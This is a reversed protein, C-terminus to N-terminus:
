LVKLVIATVDDRQIESGRFADAAARLAELIEAASNSRHQRLLEIMRDRGFLHHSPSVTEAIGDTAMLLIDGPLLILNGGSSYVASENWGLVTGTSELHRLEGNARLIMADHGAAAYTLSREKTDLAALFLTVFMDDPLDATLIENLRTMCYVPSSESLMTTRLIARTEVMELAAGIGHGSVDGVAIGLRGNGWEIFDYYDGCAKSCPISAAAFDFGPITPVRKPSLSVQIRRATQIEQEFAVQKMRDTMDRFAIVAGIVLDKDHLPAVTYEVPLPSGDRRRFTTSRVSMMSQSNSKTAIATREASDGTWEIPKRNLTIQSHCQGRLDTASWRLMQEAAPNLFSIHGAEDLGCIGDGVSDLILNHRYLLSAFEQQDRLRETVDTSIGAVAYISGKTDRLPFKLSLYSHHGDDQPAVEECQLTEGSELVRRDNARFGEALKTPFIDYDTRGLIQARTLHFLHEFQRNILLYRFDVDKVYIVSSTNDLLALVLSSFESDAQLFAAGNM